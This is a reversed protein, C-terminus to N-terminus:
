LAGMAGLIQLGSSLIGIAAIKDAWQEIFPIPSYAIRTLIFGIVAIILGFLNVWFDNFFCTAFSIITLILGIIDGVLDLQERHSLDLFKALNLGKFNHSMGIAVFELSLMGTFVGIIAGITGIITNTTKSNFPAVISPIVVTLFTILNFNVAINLLEKIPSGTPIIGIITSAILPTIFGVVLGILSSVTITFPTIICIIVTIIAMLLLIATALPSDWLNVFKNQLFKSITNTAKYEVYLEDFLTAWSVKWKQIADLVPKMVYNIKEKIVNWIWDFVKSALEKVAKVFSELAGLVANFVAEAVSDLHTKGDNISFGLNQITMEISCAREENWNLDLNTIITKEVDSCPQDYYGIDSINLIPDQNSLFDYNYQYSFGFPEDICLYFNRNQYIDRILYIEDIENLSPLFLEHELIGSIM